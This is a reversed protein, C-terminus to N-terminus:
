GNIIEQLYGSLEREHKWDEYRRYSFEGGDCCPDYDATFRCRPFNSCGFFPGYRGEVVRIEGLGCEPCKM